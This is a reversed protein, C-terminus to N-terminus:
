SRRTSKSFHGFSHDGRDLRPPPGDLEILEGSRRDSAIVRQQPDFRAADTAGVDLLVPSLELAGDIQTIRQDGAVLRDTHDIRDTGIGGRAPM